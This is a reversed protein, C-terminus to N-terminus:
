RNGDEDFYYNTNTRDVKEIFYDFDDNMMNTIGWTSNDNRGSVILPLGPITAGLANFGPCSIHAQYWRAPLSLRLHPDNALIVSTSKGKPSTRMVWANSGIGDGSFGLYTRGEYLTNTAINSFGHLYTAALPETNEVTEEINSEYQYITGPTQQPLLSMASAIGIKDAIKGFALDTWMSMNMEIAMLRMIIFCDAPTWP